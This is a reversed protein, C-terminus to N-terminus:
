AKRGSVTVEVPGFTGGDGEVVAAGVPANAFLGVEAGIWAGEV